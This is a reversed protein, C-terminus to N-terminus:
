YPRNIPLNLLHTLWRGTSGAWPNPPNYAQYDSIQYFGKSIWLSNSRNSCHFFTDRTTIQNNLTYTPSSIRGLKTPILEYVMFYPDRTFLLNIISFLLNNKEHWMRFVIGRFVLISSSFPWKSCSFGSIYTQIITAIPFNSVEMAIEHRVFLGHKKKGSKHALPSTVPLEWCPM